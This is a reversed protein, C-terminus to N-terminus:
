RMTGSCLYKVYSKQLMFENGKYVTERVINGLRPHQLVYNPFSRRYLCNYVVVTLSSKISM